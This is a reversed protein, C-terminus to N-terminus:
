LCSKLMLNALEKFLTCTVTEAQTRFKFVKSFGLLFWVIKKASTLAGGLPQSLTYLYFLISFVVGLDSLPYNLENLALTLSM